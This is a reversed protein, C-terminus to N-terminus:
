TNEEIEENEQEEESSEEEEFEDDSFQITFDSPAYRSFVLNPFYILCILFLFKLKM